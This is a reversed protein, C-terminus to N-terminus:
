NKKKKTKKEGILCLSPKVTPILGGVVENPFLYRDVIVQYTLTM